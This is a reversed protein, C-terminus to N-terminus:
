VERKYVKDTEQHPGQKVETIESDELMEFSHAGSLLVIIDGAALTVDQREWSGFLNAKVRGKNVILVEATSTVERPTPAHSHAAIIAGKSHAMRGVQM